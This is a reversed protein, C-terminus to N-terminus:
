LLGRNLGELIHSYSDFVLACTVDLKSLSTEGSQGEEEETLRAVVDSM